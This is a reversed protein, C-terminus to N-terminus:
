DVNPLEKTNQEDYAKALAAHDYDPLNMWIRIANYQTDGMSTVSNILAGTVGSPHPLNEWNAQNPNVVDSLYCFYENTALKFSWDGQIPEYREDDLRYVSLYLDLNQAKVLVIKGYYGNHKM